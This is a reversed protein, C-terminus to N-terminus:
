VNWDNVSLCECLGLWKAVAWYQLIKSYNVLEQPTIGVQSEPPLMNPDNPPLAPNNTFHYWHVPSWLPWWVLRCKTLYHDIGQYAWALLLNNKASEVPVNRLRLHFPGKWSKVTNKLLQARQSLVTRIIIDTVYLNEMEPSRSCNMQSHSSMATQLHSAKYLWDALLVCIIHPLGFM